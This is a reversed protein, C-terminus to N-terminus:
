VDTDSREWLYENFEHHLGKQNVFSELDHLNKRMIKIEKENKKQFELANIIKKLSYILFEGSYITDLFEKRSVNM